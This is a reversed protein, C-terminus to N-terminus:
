PGIIGALPDALVRGRTVSDSEPLAVMGIVAARGVTLWETGQQVGAAAQEFFVLEPQPMRDRM